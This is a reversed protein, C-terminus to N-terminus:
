ATSSRRPWSVLRMAVIVAAAIKDLTERHDRPTAGVATASVGLAIFVASFSAVFHLSAPLVRRAPAGELENPAVGANSARTPRRASLKRAASPACKVSAWVPDTHSM